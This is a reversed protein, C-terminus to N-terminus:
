KLGKWVLDVSAFLIGGDLKASWDIPLDGVFYCIWSLEESAASHDRVTSFDSYYFESNWKKGPAEIM